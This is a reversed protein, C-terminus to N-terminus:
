HMRLRRKWFPLKHHLVFDEQENGDLDLHEYKELAVKSYKQIMKKLDHPDTKFIDSKGFKDAYGDGKSSYCLKAEELTKEDIIRNPEVNNSIADAIDKAILLHINSYVLIEYGIRITVSNSDKGGGVRRMVNKALVGKLLNTNDMNVVVNQKMDNVTITRESLAKTCDQYIKQFIDEDEGVITSGYSRDDKIIQHELVKNIDTSLRWFHVQCEETKITGLIVFFWHRDGKATSNRKLTKLDDLFHLAQSEVNEKEDYDKINDLSTRGMIYFDLPDNQSPSLEKSIFNFCGMAALSFAFNSPGVIQSTSIITVNSGRDIFCGYETNIPSHTVVLTDVAKDSRVTSSLNALHLDPCYRVTDIIDNVNMGTKVQLYNMSRYRPVFKYTYKLKTKEGKKNIKEREFYSSTQEIRRFQKHLVESAENLETEKRDEAIADMFGSGILGAPVAFIAIGIIGIIAAIIRGVFTVPQYDAFNGPDGIYQMFSWLVSDWFNHYTEPQVMHEVTYLLVSLFVTVVVLVQLSIWMEHKTNNLAKFFLSFGKLKFKNKM